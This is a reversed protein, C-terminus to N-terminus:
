RIPRGRVRGSECAIRSARFIRYREWQMSGPGPLVFCNAFPRVGAWSLSYTRKRAERLDGFRMLERVAGTPASTGVTHGPAAGAAQRVMSRHPQSNEYYPQPPAHCRNEVVAPHLRGRGRCGAGAAARAETPPGGPLLLRHATSAGRVARAEASGTLLVGIGAHVVPRRVHRVRHALGAARPAAHGRVVAILGHLPEHEQGFDCSALPTLAASGDALNWLASLSLSLRAEEDATYAVAGGLYYRGLYYSEGGALRPDTLKALHGGAGGAGIGNYHYEGTLVLRGSLWDVGATVRPRDPEDDDLHWPLAAEARLKTRDLVYAVGSSATVENWFKGAAAYVDASALDIPARLGASCDDPRGRAAVVADLEVGATRYALVRLADSTPKEATDLEFPSFQAWRDAIPFLSSLRWTTAQRRVTVDAVGTRVTLALRDIDHWVDVREEDVIRTSLDVPRRPEVDDGM